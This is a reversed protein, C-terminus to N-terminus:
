GLVLITCWVNGCWFLPVALTQTHPDPAPCVGTLQQDAAVRSIQNPFGCVMVEMIGEPARPGLGVLFAPLCPDPLLLGVSSFGARHPPPLDETASEEEARGV